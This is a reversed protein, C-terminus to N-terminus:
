LKLVGTPIQRNIAIKGKPTAIETVFVTTGRIHVEAEDRYVMNKSFTWDWEVSSKPVVGCIVIKVMSKRDEPSRYNPHSHGVLDTRAADVDYTWHVGVETNAGGVIAHLWDETVAMGRFVPMPDPLNSFFEYIDDFALEADAESDFGDDEYDSVYADRKNLMQALGRQADEVINIYHRM